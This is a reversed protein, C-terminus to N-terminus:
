WSGEVRPYPRHPDVRVPRQDEDPAQPAELVPDDAPDDAVWKWVVRKAVRSAHDRGIGYTEALEQLGEGAAYRRRLERVMDPTLKAMTGRGTKPSPKYAKRDRRGWVARHLEKRTVWKLNELRCDAQDGNVHMVLHAPSPPPGAFAEAVLRSVRYMIREGPRGTVLTVVQCGGSNMSPSLVGGWVKRLTYGTMTRTKVTRALSKVRGLDSVAYIGLYGPVPRWQEDQLDEQRAAGHNTRKKKTM